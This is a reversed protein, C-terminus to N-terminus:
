NGQRALNSGTAGTNARQNGVTRWIAGKTGRHALNSGQHVPAGSQERTQGKARWIAGRTCQHKGEPERQNGKTCQNGKTRWIAGKNAGQHALNGGEVGFAALPMQKTEQHTGRHNGVTRPFEDGFVGGFCLLPTACRNARSARLSLTTSELRRPRM